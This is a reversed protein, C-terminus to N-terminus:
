ATATLNSAGAHLGLLEANEYINGLIESESHLEYLNDSKTAWMGREKHWEVAEIRNAPEHRASEGIYEVTNEEYILIIDGEYIEKGYRDYFGTFQLLVFRNAFNEIAKNLNALDDNIHPDIIAQGNWAKFKIERM